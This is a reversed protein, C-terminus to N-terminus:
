NELFTVKGSTVDYMAGILEMKEEDLYKKLYSSRERIENMSNLVNKEAV